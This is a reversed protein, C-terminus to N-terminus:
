FSYRAGLVFARPDNDVDDIILFSSQRMDFTPTDWEIHNDVNVFDVYVNLNRGTGMQFNYSFRMDIAYTGPWRGGNPTGDFEVDFDDFGDPADVTYTGAQALEQFEGNRDPDTSSDVIDFPAGSTFRAIGSLQLGGTYPVRVMGNLVLNHRRDNGLPGQAMDLRLDDGLQWDSAQDQGSNGRSFGLTYSARFSYNQSYNKRLEVTLGDFQNEGVNVPTFVDSEYPEGFVVPNLREVPDRRSTGTRLPPNLNRLVILDYTRKSVYDVNVAMTDTLQQSVGFSAQWTYPNHRDPNDLFVSGVNKQRTGPPFNEAIWAENVEPFTALTPHTPFEGTSPGPDIGDIPFDVIFSETFPGDKYYQSTWSFETRMYYKGLGGRIATRGRDDLQYAFGLRPALNNWDVPYDDPSDFQPNYEVPEPVKVVEVEYRVGLNLTLRDIRWKDQVYAAGFNADDHFISAGPLRMTFRDPYTTPDAPDFALNHSFSFLGNRYSQNDERLRTWGLDVGAQIDHGGRGRPIYVSFTNSALYTHEGVGEAKWAQQLRFDDYDLTPALV